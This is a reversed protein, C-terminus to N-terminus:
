RGSRCKSALARAQNQSQAMGRIRHKGTNHTEVCGDQNVLLRRAEAFDATRRGSTSPQGLDKPWWSEGFDLQQLDSDTELWTVGDDAGRGAGQSTAAQM